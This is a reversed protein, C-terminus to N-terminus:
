LANIELVAKRADATAELVRGPRDCTGIKVFPVKGSLKESLEDAPRLGMALVVTDCPIITQEDNYKAIVYGDEVSELATATQVYIRNDKEIMEKLMKKNQYFMDEPLLQPAMEIMTIQRDTGAFHLATECGVLGAGVVLLNKGLVVKDDLADIATVVNAKSIGPISKPVVPNTGTAIIVRDAGYALINEATADVGYKVRIRLKVIQMRYYSVLDAVEKKFSPRGAAKLMGGLLFSKEWIEVDHGLKKPKSRLKM